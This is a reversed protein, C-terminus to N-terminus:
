KGDAKKLGELFKRAHGAIKVARDTGNVIRRANIFDAVKDSFYNALKKGTFVGNTMGDWIIYAAFKPDLAKEPTKEIGYKKYNDEWTLQVYGRGIFPWYPKKMLYYKGGRETIPQMTYATEHWATALVYAIETLRAKRKIGEDLLNEFGEVQSQSLPGYYKRVVKYFEAKNM